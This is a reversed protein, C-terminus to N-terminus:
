SEIIVKGEMGAQRHGPISCYSTYDGPEDFKFTNSADKGPQAHAAGLDEHGEVTFDHELVGTNTLKVTFQEGADVRLAAPEFKFEKAQVEIVRAGPDVQGASHETTGGHMAGGMPADSMMGGPGHPDDANGSGGCAAFSALAALGLGAALAAHKMRPSTL